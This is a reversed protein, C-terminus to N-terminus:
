GPRGKPHVAALALRVHQLGSAHMAARLHTTGEGGIVDCSVTQVTDEDEDM